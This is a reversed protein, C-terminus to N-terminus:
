KSDENSSRTRYEEPLSKELLEIMYMKADYSMNQICAKFETANNVFNGNLANLAADNNLLMAECILRQDEKSFTSFEKM